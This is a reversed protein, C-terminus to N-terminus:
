DEWDDGLSAEAEDDAMAAERLEDADFMHPAADYAEVAGVIRKVIREDEGLDLGVFRQGDDTQTRVVQMGNGRGAFAASVVAWVPLVAGHILHVHTIRAGQKLSWDYWYDWVRRATAEDTQVYEKQINLLGSYHMEWGRGPKCVRFRRSDWPKANRNPNFVETLLNIHPRGDRGGTKSVWYGNEPPVPRNKSLSLAAAALSSPPSSGQGGGRAASLARWRQAVM